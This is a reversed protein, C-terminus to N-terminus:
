ADTMGIPLGSPLIFKKFDRKTSTPATSAPPKGKSFLAQREEAERAARAYFARRKAVQDPETWGEDDSAKPTPELKVIQRGCRPCQGADNPQQACNYCRLRKAGLREGLKREAAELRELHERHFIAGM